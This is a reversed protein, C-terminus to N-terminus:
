EIMLLEDYMEQLSKFSYVFIPPVIRSSSHYFSNIIYKYSNYYDYLPTGPIEKILDGVEKYDIEVIDYARKEILRRIKLGFLIKYIFIYCVNTNSISVINGSSTKAKINISSYDKSIDEFLSSVTETNIDDINFYFIENVMKNLEEITIEERIHNISDSLAIYLENIKEKINNLEINNNNKFLLQEIKIENRLLAAFAILSYKDVMKECLKLTVGYDCPNVDIKELIKYEDNFIKIEKEPGIQDLWFINFNSDNDKLPKYLDIIYMSHSFIDISNINNINEQILKIIISILDQVYIDDYSDFPDDIVIHLKGELIKQHVLIDFYLFKFYNQESKSMKNYEIKSNIVKLKGDVVEISIDSNKYVSHSNLKNKIYSNLEPNKEIRFDKIKKLVDDMKEKNSKYLSIEKKDYHISLYSIISNEVDIVFKKYYEEYSNCTLIDLMIKKLDEYKNNLYFMISEKLDDDITGNQVSKIIEDLKDKDLTSFCVPCKPYKDPDKVIKEQVSYIDYSVINNISEPLIRINNKKLRDIIDFINLSNTKPKFMDKIIEEKYIPILDIDNYTYAEDNIYSSIREFGLFAKKTNILCLDKLNNKISLKDKYKDLEKSYKNYEQAMPMIEFSNIDNNNQIIMNSLIDDDFLLINEGNNEYYKKISLAIQTKGIKNPGYFINYNSNLPLTISYGNELSLIM